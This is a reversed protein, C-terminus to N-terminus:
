IGITSGPERGQRPSVNRRRGPSSVLLFCKTQDLQAHFFKESRDSLRLTPVCDVGEPRLELVARTRRLRAVSVWHECMAVFDFCVPAIFEAFWPIRNLM